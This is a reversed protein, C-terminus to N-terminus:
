DYLFKRNDHNEPTREVSRKLREVGSLVDM